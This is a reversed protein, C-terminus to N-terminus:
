FDAEKDILRNPFHFLRIAGGVMGKSMEDRDANSKKMMEITNMVFM